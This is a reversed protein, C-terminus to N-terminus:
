SLLWATCGKMLRGPIELNYNVLPLPKTLNYSLRVTPSGRGTRKGVKGVFPPGAMRGVAESRSRSRDSGVRHLRSGTPPRRRSPRPKSCSKCARAGAAPERELLPFDHMKM